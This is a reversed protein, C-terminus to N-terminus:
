LRPMKLDRRSDVSCVFCFVTFSYFHLLFIALVFSFIFILFSFSNGGSSSILLSRDIFFLNPQLVENLTHRNM